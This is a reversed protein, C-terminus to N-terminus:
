IDRHSIQTNAPSMNVDFIGDVWASVEWHHFCRIPAFIPDEADLAKLEEELSQLELDQIRKPGNRDSVRVRSPKQPHYSARNKQSTMGDSFGHPIRYPSLWELHLNRPFIMPIHNQFMYHSGLFIFICNPLGPLYSPFLYGRTLMAMSLDVMKFRVTFWRNRHVM